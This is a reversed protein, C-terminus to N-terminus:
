CDSGGGAAMKTELSHFRLVLRESLPKATYADEQEIGEDDVVTTKFNAYIAALMYKMENVAFNSGICMRGGSSFAWFNRHMERRREEWEKLEAGEINNAKPQLWRSPIWEEPQLYVRADRHLSHASSAIRVGGPIRHGGIHCGDKPTQRPQPGPIPAHLRLTEMIVANLLPLADLTKPDPLTPRANTNEPISGHDLKMSAAVSMIEARLEEQLEPIKSLHWTAYTLAVGTTEQGALSHDMLESAVAPDRELISTSYLLSKEGNTRWERDIGAHLANYVVPEDAADTENDTAQLNQKAEESTAQKAKECLDRNWQGLDENSEDVWKPYLRFWPMWRSCFATLAPVEQPWFPYNARALYMKQWSQRHSEDEIFNTGNSLGFIYATILDMAAALFLGFVEVDHHNRASRQHSKVGVDMDGVENSKAEARGYLSPILRRFLVHSLQSHSAPSSQIFTKSYINSIMRKRASHSKSSSTSFMNPVGYNDFITYWFGKEFGGQYIARIAEVGDASVENPGIRVVPGYELHAKFLSNNEQKNKRALLIWLSCFHCTWHAAPLKRLPSVFVPYLAYQYILYVVVACAATPLILGM